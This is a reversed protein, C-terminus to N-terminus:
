ASGSFLGRIDPKRLTRLSWVYYGMKVLWWLAAFLIAGISAAGMFSEMFGGFDPQGPQRLAPDDLLGTMYEQTIEMTKTSMFAGFAASATDVLMLVGAAITFVLPGRSKLGLCLIAGIVLLVSFFFNAGNMSLTLPLWEAQLENLRAQMQRQSEVMHEGAPGAQRQFQELQREQMGQIAGQGLLAVLGTGAGIVGLGGLVLGLVCLTTLVGPRQAAM